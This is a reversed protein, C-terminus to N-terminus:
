ALRFFANISDRWPIERPIGHDVDPLVSLGGVGHFPVSGMVLLYGYEISVAYGIRCADVFSFFDDSMEMFNVCLRLWKDNGNKLQKVFMLYEATSECIPQAPTMDSDGQRACRHVSAFTHMCVTTIGENVLRILAVMSTLQNLGTHWDGPFPMVRSMAKLFVDAQVNATSYSMQREQTDRVFKTVNEITKADGVFYM